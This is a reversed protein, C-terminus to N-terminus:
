GKKLVKGVKRAAGAIRSRVATGAVKAGIRPGLAAGAAFGAFGGITSGISSGIMTGIIKGMLGIEPRSAAIKLLKRAELLKGYESNFDKISKGNVQLGSTASEIRKKLIDGVDHEVSDIVKDGAKNYANKYTSRKLENLSSVPIQKGQKLKLTNKVEDIQREIALIDRENVYKSKLSELDSLIDERSVVKTKAEKNLFGQLTNETEDTLKEVKALRESANGTIKKENIFDTVQNLTKGLKQKQTPTLRLSAEELSRSFNIAKEGTAEVARSALKPLDEIIEKGGRIAGEAAKVGTGLLKEAPLISIINLLSDADREIRGALDPNTQRFEEFKDKGAQLANLGLKLAPTNEIVRQAGRKLGELVPKEIFDPTVKSLVAGIGKLGEIGVDFAGGITQGTTQLISEATTQKGLSEAEFGAGVTEGRKKIAESIGSVTEKGIDLFSKEKEIEPQDYKKKFDDVVFQINFDSEENNQMDQVIMDLEKRKEEPLM